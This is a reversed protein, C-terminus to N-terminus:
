THFLDTYQSTERLDLTYTRLRYSVNSCKADTDVCNAGVTVGQSHSEISLLKKYVALASCQLCPQGLTLFSSALKILATVYLLTTIDTDLHCTAQCQTLTLSLHLLWTLITIRAAYARIVM